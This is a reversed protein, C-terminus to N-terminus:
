AFDGLADLADAVEKVDDKIEALVRKGYETVTYFKTKRLLGDQGVVEGRRTTLLDRSELRELSTYISGMKVPESAMKEVRERITLIRGEGQLLYAATLVLQDYGKLPRVLLPMNPQHSEVPAAPKSEQLKNQMAAKLKLWVREGAAEIDEQSAKPLYRRMMEDFEKDDMSM